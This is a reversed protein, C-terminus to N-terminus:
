KPKQWPPKAIVVHHRTDGHEVGISAPLMFSPIELTTQQGCQQCNLTFHVIEEDDIETGDITPVPTTSEADSSEVVRWSSADMGHDQHALALWFQRWWSGREKEPV